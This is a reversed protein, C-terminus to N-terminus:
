FYYTTFDEDKSTYEGNNCIDQEYSYCGEECSDYTGAICTYQYKAYYYCGDEYEEIKQVKTDHGTTPNGGESTSENVYDSIGAWEYWYELGTDAKALTFTTSNLNSCLFTFNIATILITLIIITLYIKITKM